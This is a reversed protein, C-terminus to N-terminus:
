DTFDPPPRFGGFETEILRAFEICTRDGLYPGIIQLGVPLGSRTLGAPAVTSPLYVVGSYGAWFLQDTTPVDHGNIRITRQYREGEQDHPQAASSAAPCLLLDYEEFFAQWRLRLHSREERIALWDAHSMTNARMMQAYYSGDDPDLTAVAARARAKEEDTQRGSTAARLLAVYVQHLRRTDINPRATDSVAAGAAAIKDILAQLTETLEDDVETNPDSLMVGVKFDALRTKRPAPLDIRWGPADFPDPATILDLAVALDEAGRALPGIVSIDAPTLTGPLAHGRPSAIGYSPKHGFVGCYHAPNRISAGIDSGSELGCLGASLATAGGGSSGGPARSVDWPNNTTGYIENYTQWDALMYPVNTKGFIVAGAARYREVALADSAAINDKLWPAGWTTPMGAVDYSEKVTMPVGHLPGLVTGDALASDLERARARAGEADMVVVANLAPNHRDVRDLFLDLLEVCGIEKNRIASALTVASDFARGAM